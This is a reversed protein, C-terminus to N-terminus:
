REQHDRLLHNSYWNLLWFAGKAVDRLPARFTELNGSVLCRASTAFRRLTSGPERRTVIAYLTWIVTYGVLLFAMMRDCRAPDVLSDFLQECAKRGLRYIEAASM